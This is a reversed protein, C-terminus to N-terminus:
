EDRLAIVPDVRLARRAPQVAALVAVTLFLVLAAAWAAPDLPSVEFLQARLFRTFALAAAAGAALGTGALWLAQGIVLQRVGAASAGLAMRIGFERRRLTVAYSLMAYFGATALALAVLTFAAVPVAFFRERWSARDRIQGLTLLRSVAISHDQGRIQARIASVLRLPDGSTGVVFANPTVRESYPLYVGTADLQKLGRQKSDACGRDGYAM